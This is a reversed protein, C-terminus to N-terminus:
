VNRGNFNYEFVKCDVGNINRDSIQTFGAKGFAKISAINTSKVEAQLCHFFRLKQLLRVISTIMRFGVYNGRYRRDVSFDIKPFEEAEIRVQGVPIQDKFFVFMLSDSNLKKEFWKVHDVWEIVATHHANERVLPDNVWEFYLSADDSDALRYTLPKNFSQM